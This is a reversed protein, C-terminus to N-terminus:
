PSFAFDVIPLRIEESTTGDRFVCQVYVAAADAPLTAKWIEARSRPVNCAIVNDISVNVAVAELEGMKHGVRVERVYGWDYYVYNGSQTAPLCVIVPAQQVFGLGAHTLQGGISKMRRSYEGANPFDAPDQPFRQGIRLCAIKQVLDEKTFRPKLMNVIMSPADKLRYRFAGLEAGDQKKFLLRVTTDRVPGLFYFVRGGYQETFPAKFFGEEDFSYMVDFTGAPPDPIFQIEYSERNNKFTLQTAAFLPPALNGAASPEAPVRVGFRGQRDAGPKWSKLESRTGDYFELQVYLQKTGIRYPVFNFGYKGSVAAIAQADEVPPSPPIEIVRDLNDASEGFRIRKVAPFYFSLRSDSVFGREGSMSEHMWPEYHLATAKYSELLDYAKATLGTAPLPRRGGPQANRATPAAPIDGGPITHSESRTTPHIALAPAPPQTSDVASTSTAGGPAQAEDASQGGFNRAFWDSIETRRSDWVLRKAAFAAGALIALLVAATVMRSFWRRAVALKSPRALRPLELTAALDQQLRDM